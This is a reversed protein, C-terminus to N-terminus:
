LWRYPAAARSPPVRSSRLLWPQPRTWTAWCADHVGSTLWKDPIHDAWDLRPREREFIPSTRINRKRNQIKFPIHIELFFSTLVRSDFLVTRTPSLERPSLSRGRDGDVTVRPSIYRTSRSVSALVSIGSRLGPRGDRMRRELTTRSRTHCHETSLARAAKVRVAKSKRRGYKSESM